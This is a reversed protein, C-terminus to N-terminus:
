SPSYDVIATLTKALGTRFSAARKGGYSDDGIARTPIDPKVFDEDETEAEPGHCSDHGAVNEIM